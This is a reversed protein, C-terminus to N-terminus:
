LFYFYFTLLLLFILYGLSYQALNIGWLFVHRSSESTWPGAEWGAVYPQVSVKEMSPVLGM